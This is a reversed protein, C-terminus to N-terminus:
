RSCRRRPRVLRKKVGGYSETMPYTTATAFMAAGLVFLLVATIVDKRRLDRKEDM